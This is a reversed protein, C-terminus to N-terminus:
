CTVVSACNDGPKPGLAISLYVSSLANKEAQLGVDPWKLSYTPLCGLLWM